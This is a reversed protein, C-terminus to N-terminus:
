KQHTPQSHGFLIEYESVTEGEPWIEFLPPIAVNEIANKYLMSEVRLVIM